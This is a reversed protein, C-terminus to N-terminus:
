KGAITIDTATRGNTASSASAAAASSGPAAGTGSTQVTVSSGVTVDGSTSSTQDHYTTSSGTSITVTQGDALKLTISDSGASVVTGSVTAAGSGLGTGPGGIGSRPDGSANAGFGGQGVPLGNAGGAATGGTSGGSSTMHGFAFALGGVAVLAAIVLLLTTSRSRQSRNHLRGPARVSSAELTAVVVASDVESPAGDEPGGGAVTIKQGPQDVNPQWVPAKETPLQATTGPDASTTM